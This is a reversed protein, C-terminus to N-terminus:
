AGQMRHDNNFPTTFILSVSVPAPTSKQFSSAPSITTRPSGEGEVVGIDTGSTMRAKKRPPATPATATLKMTKAKLMPHKRNKGDPITKAPLMDAIKKNLNAQASTM